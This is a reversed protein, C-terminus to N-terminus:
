LTVGTLLAQDGRGRIEDVEILDDGSRVWVNARDGRDVPMLGYDVNQWATLTATARTVIRDNFAFSIVAVGLGAVFLPALVQHASLGSSKLAVIESNQNMTFLTLITGLLVSYPLFTAVIQPARLTVYRWVEGQGNGHVALIKGSEGLLALALLVLVLGALIGFTRTLFLKAMYIAVTRSPFFGLM